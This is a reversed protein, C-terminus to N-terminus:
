RRVPTATIARTPCCRAAHHVADTHETNPHADYRLRGDVDVDFVQPAEQQCIGFLHCRNNDVDIRTRPPTDSSSANPGAAPNQRPM